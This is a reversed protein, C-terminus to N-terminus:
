GYQAISVIFPPLISNRKLRAWVWSFVGWLACKEASAQEFAQLTEWLDGKCIGAIGKQGQRNPFNWVKQGASKAGETCSKRLIPHSLGKQPLREVGKFILSKRGLIASAQPNSSSNNLISPITDLKSLFLHPLFANQLM